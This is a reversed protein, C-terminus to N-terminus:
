RAVRVNGYKKQYFDMVEEIISEEDCVIDYDEEDFGSTFDDIDIWDTEFGPKLIM